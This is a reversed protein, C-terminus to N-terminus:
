SPISAMADANYVQKLMVSIDTVVTQLVTSMYNLSRDTFVVSFEESGEFDVTNLLAPM